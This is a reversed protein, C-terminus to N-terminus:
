RREASPRPDDLEADILMVSAAAVKRVAAQLEDLRISSPALAAFGNDPSIDTDAALLYSYGDLYVGSGAYVFVFLTNPSPHLDSVGPMVAGICAFMKGGVKWDDHGGGWPDSVEAGPFKRCIATVLRRSM